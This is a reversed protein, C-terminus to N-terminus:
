DFERHDVQGHYRTKDSRSSATIGGTLKSVTSLDSRVLLFDRVIRDVAQNEVAPNRLPLPVTLRHPLKLCTYHM